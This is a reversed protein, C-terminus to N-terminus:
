WKPIHRRTACCRSRHTNPHTSGPGPRNWAPFNWSSSARQRGPAKWPRAAGGRAIYRGGYLAVTAPALDRYTAYTEPDTVTIDVVVYAAM